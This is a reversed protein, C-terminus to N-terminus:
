LTSSVLQYVKGIIHATDAESVVDNSISARNNVVLKGYVNLDAHQLHNRFYEMMEAQKARIKIEELERTKILAKEEVDHGIAQIYDRTYDKLSFTTVITTLPPKWENVFTVLKTNALQIGRGETIPLKSLTEQLANWPGNIETLLLEFQERIELMTIPTKSLKNRHLLISKLTATYQLPCVNRPKGYLEQSAIYSNWTLEKDPIDGLPSTTVKCRKTNPPTGNHVVCLIADRILAKKPSPSAKSSM